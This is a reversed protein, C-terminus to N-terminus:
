HGPEECACDALFAGLLGAGPLLAAVERALAEGDLRRAEPLEPHNHMFFAPEPATDDWVAEPGFLLFVDWAPSGAALGLPDRFAEGVSRDSAWFQAVRPDRVLAAAAGAAAGDDAELIPEWVLYVRLDDAEERELVYRQVLRAGVKCIHCTPSLIIVLRVAGRDRNFAERLAAVGGPGLPTPEAVPPPPGSRRALHFVLEQGAEHVVGQIREGAEDLEGDFRATGTRDTYAFRLRRGEVSLSDLSKREVGQTPVSLFGAATTGEGEVELVVDVEFAAPRVVIAGDWTGALQQASLPVGGAVVLALLWPLHRHSSTAM